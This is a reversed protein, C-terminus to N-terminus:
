NCKLNIVKNKKIEGKIGAEVAKFVDEKVYYALYKENMGQLRATEKRIEYYMDNFGEKTVKLYAKPGKIFNISIIDELKGNIKVKTKVHQLDSYGKDIGMNIAITKEDLTAETTLTGLDKNLTLKVPNKGVMVINVNAKLRTVTYEYAGIKDDRVISVKFAGGLITTKVIGKKTKDIFPAVVDRVMNIGGVLKYYHSQTKLQGTDLLGHFTVPEGVKLSSITDAIKSKIEPIHSGNDDSIVSKHVKFSPVLPNRISTGAEPITHDFLYRKFSDTLSSAYKNRVKYVAGSKNYLIRAEAKIIPDGLLEVTSFVGALRPDTGFNFSETGVTEPILHMVADINGKFNDYDRINSANKPEIINGKLFLDPNKKMLRVGPVRKISDKTQVMYTEYIINVDDTTDTGAYNLIWADENDDGYKIKYGIQKGALGLENAFPVDAHTQPSVNTSYPLAEDAVIDFIRLAMKDTDPAFFLANKLRPDVMRFVKGATHVNGIVLQLVRPTISYSVKKSRYGIEAMQAAIEPDQDEQGEQDEGGYYQEQEHEYDEGEYGELGDTYSRSEEALTLETPIDGNIINQIIPTSTRFNDQYYEQSLGNLYTGLEYIIEDFVEIMSGKKVEGKSVIVAYLSLNNYLRIKFENLEKIKKVRANHDDESEDVKRAHTIDATKLERIGDFILAADATDVNGGKLKPMALISKISKYTNTYALADLGANDKIQTKAYSLYKPFEHIFVQRNIPNDLKLRKIKNPDFSGNANQHMVEGIKYAVKGTDNGHDDKIPIESNLYAEVKLAALSSKINKYILPDRGKRGAQIKTELVTKFLSPMKYIESEYLNLFLDRSQPHLFIMQDPNFVKVDNHANLDIQLGRFTDSMITNYLDKSKVNQLIKDLTAQEIKANENLSRVDRFKTIQEGIQLLSVLSEKSDSSFDDLNAVANSNLSVRRLSGKEKSFHVLIKEIMPDYLFDIIDDVEYGLIMMTTIVPNTLSSSRVKGLLLEKANDTAASLFQSQVDNSLQKGIVNLFADEVLSPNNSLYVKLDHIPTNSSFVEAPVTIGFTSSLIDSFIRTNENTPKIISDKVRQKQKNFYRGADRDIKVAKRFSKLFDNSVIKESMKDMLYLLFQEDFTNTGADEGFEDLLATKEEFTFPEPIRLTEYISTSVEEQIMGVLTPLAAERYNNQGKYLDELKQQIDKSGAINKTINFRDLDAFHKRSKVVAVGERKFSIKHDFIFPDTEDNDSLHKYKRYNMQAAQIASNIKLVTAFMGIAEKGQAALEESRFIPWFTEGSAGFDSPTGFLAELREIIPEFMSMSIPTNLEVATDVSNLSDLVSGAVVNALINEYRKHIGSVISNIIEERKDKEITNTETFGLRRELIAKKSKDPEAEIKEELRDIYEQNETNYTDIYKDIGEYVATLEKNYAANLKEFQFVGDEDDFADTKYIKGEADMTKTLVSLTDIDYDGGTSVLHETPAFSANGQADLFEVVRGVFGSQKSQGPIRTLVTDLMEVFSDALQTIHSEFAAEKRNNIYNIAEQSLFVDHESIGEAAATAKVYENETGQLYRLIDDYWENQETIARSAYIRTIMKSYHKNNDTRNNNSILAFRKGRPTSTRLKEKLFVLQDDRNTSHGVMDHLYSEKLMGFRERMYSPLIVEAPTMDWVNKGDDHKRQTELIMKARLKALQSESIDKVLMVGRYYERYALTDQIDITKGDEERTIQMWKLSYKETIDETLDGDVILAGVEERSYVEEFFWKFYTKYKNLGVRVRVLDNEQLDDYELFVDEQGGEEPLILEDYHADPTLVVYMDKSTLTYTGTAENVAKVPALGTHKEISVASKDYLTESNRRGEVIENGDKDFAIVTTVIKVKDFPLVYQDVLDLEGDTANNIHLLSGEEGRGEWDYEPGAALAARIYSGRGKRGGDFNYINVLKHTASVVAQFGEMRMKVTDGFFASRLTGMVKNQIAPTDLSYLIDAEEELGKVGKIMQKILASDASENFALQAMSYVGSRIIEEYLAKQSETYDDTSVDGENLKAIIKFYDTSTYPGDKENKMKEAAVIALDRGVRLRNLRMRGGMANQLSMANVDSLGGFSIANILQSLLALSSRKNLKGSVDYDHEKTLVEFNFENSIYDVLLDPTSVFDRGPVKDDVRDIFDQKPTFVKEFKNIKKRGTKQSSPVNIIGVFNFMETPNQRLVELVDNWARDGQTKYGGFFAFLDDLNNIPTALLEEDVNGEEDVYTLSANKFDIATNMKKFVNFVEASGVKSMQAISFPMQTSNKQLAHRNKGYEVSTNLMKNATNADTSFAGITNGRAQDQILAYLPHVYQIGDSNEQHIDMKNLLNVYSTPDSILISPVYDPITIPDRKSANVNVDSLHDKIDSMTLSVDRNSFVGPNISSVNVKSDKKWQEKSLANNIINGEPDKALRNELLDKIGELLEIPLDSSIFPSMENLDTSVIVQDRGINFKVLIGGTKSRNSLIHTGDVLPSIVGKGWLETLTSGELDKFRYIDKPGRGKYIELHQLLNDRNSNKKLGVLTEKQAYKVGRTLVSQSRKFQAVLMSSVGDLGAAELDEIKNSKLAANADNYYDAVTNAKFKGGFYSEDGMTITKLSHGYIGNILFFREIFEDVGSIIDHKSELVKQLRDINIGFSELSGKKYETTKLLNKTESLYRDVLKNASKNNRFLKARIGATPKLFASDGEGKFTVYDAGQDLDAVSEAIIEPNLKVRMLLRNFPSTMDGTQANFDTNLLLHNLEKLAQLQDAPDTKLYKADEIIRNHINEYDGAIFERFSTLTVRQLAENKKYNYEIYANRLGKHIDSGSALLNVDDLPSVSFMEPSSKDSYNTVQLFFQKGVAKKPAELFGEIMAHELRIKTDWDSINIVNGDYVIPAKIFVDNVVAPLIDSGEAKEDILYPNHGMDTATVKDDNFKKTKKVQRIVTTNKNPTTSSQTTKNGINQAKSSDVFFVEALNKQEADTILASPSLYMFDKHVAIRDVSKELSGSLSLRNTGDESNIAALEVIKRFTAIVHKDVDVSDYMNSYTHVIDNYLDELGINMAISRMGVSDGYPEVTTTKKISAKRNLGVDILVDDMSVQIKSMISRKTFRDIGVLYGSLAEDIIQGESGKNPGKTAVVRGEEVKLYRVHHKSILSSMLANVIDDNMNKHLLTRGAARISHIDPTYIATTSFIYAHLSRAISSIKSNNKNAMEQLKTSLADLNPETDVLLPAIAVFDSVDMRRGISGDSGVIKLLPMLNNIFKSSNDLPNVFHDISSTNRDSSGNYSYYKDPNLPINTGDFDRYYYDNNGLIHYFAGKELETNRLFSATSVSLKTMKNDVNEKLTLRSRKGDVRDFLKSALKRPIDLLLPELKESESEFGEVTKNYRITSGNDIGVVKILSDLIFDFDNLLVSNYYKKRVGERNTDAVLRNMFESDDKGYEVGSLDNLENELDKKFKKVKTNIDSIFGKKGEFDVFMNFFSNRVWETFDTGIKNSSPFYTQLVAGWMDQSDKKIDAVLEIRNKKKVSMFNEADKVSIEELVVAQKIVNHAIDSDAAWLIKNDLVVNDAVITDKTIIAQSKILEVIHESTSIGKGLLSINHAVVEDPLKNEAIYNNLETVTNQTTLGKYKGTPISLSGELIKAIFEPDGAKGVSFMATMASLYSTKLEDSNAPNKIAARSFKTATRIADITCKSM